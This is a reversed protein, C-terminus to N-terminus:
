QLDTIEQSSRAGYKEAPESEQYGFEDEEDLYQEKEIDEAYEIDVTEENEWDETQIDDLEGNDNNNKKDLYAKAGIGAAAAASLGAAIPIVMSGGSSKSKIPESSTPIKTYNNGKIVDDVSTESDDLIDEITSDVGTETTPETQSVYGQSGSYGGGTNHTGGGGSGSGTDIAPGPKPNDTPTTPKTEDTKTDDTKTEDTKTEDTKTEDTKTDDTKTDDTKTEDKKTEEKKTEDKTADKKDSSSTSSDNSSDVQRKNVTSGGNGGSDNNTGENQDKDADGDSNKIGYKEELKAIEEARKDPDLAGTVVAGTAVMKEELLLQLYRKADKDTMGYKDKYKELDDDLTVSTITPSIKAGANKLKEKTEDSLNDRTSAISDLTFNDGNITEALKDGVGIAIIAEKLDSMKFDDTEAKDYIELVNEIESSLSTLYTCRKKLNDRISTPGSELRNLNNKFIDGHLKNQHEISDITNDLEKIIDELDSAITKLRGNSISIKSYEICSTKGMKCVGNMM